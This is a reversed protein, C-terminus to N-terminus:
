ELSSRIRQPAVGAQAFDCLSKAWRVQQFDFYHVGHRTEAPQVLGVQVWTRVRDGSVRLVSSLQSTSLRQVGRAPSDLGLRALFDAESLIAIPQMRELRRAKQLKHTLRGDKDLPWGDQGIVLMSTRRTITTLWEGGYARVLIAAQRRTMSALQGTFAVKHGVLPKADTARQTM